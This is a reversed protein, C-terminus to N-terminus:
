RSGKYLTTRGSETQSIIYKCDVLCKKIEYDMESLAQYAKDWGVVTLELKREPPTGCWVESNLRTSWDQKKLM